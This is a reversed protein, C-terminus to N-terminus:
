VKGLLFPPYETPLVPFPNALIVFTSSGLSFLKKCLIVNRYSPYSFVYEGVNSADISSYMASNSVVSVSTAIVVFGSSEFDVISPNPFNSTNAPVFM